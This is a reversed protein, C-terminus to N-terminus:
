VFTELQIEGQLTQRQIAFVEHGATGTKRKMLLYQGKQPKEKNWHNNSLTTQQTISISKHM